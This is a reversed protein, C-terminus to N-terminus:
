SILFHGNFYSFCLPLNFDVSVDSAVSPCFHLLSFRISILTKAVQLKLFLAWPVYKNTESKQNQWKITIEKSVKDDMAISPYYDAFNFLIFQVVTVCGRILSTIQIRQQNSSSSEKDSSARKVLSTGKM